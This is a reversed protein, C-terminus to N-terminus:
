WFEFGGHQPRATSFAPLCGVLRPLLDAPSPRALFTRRSSTVTLGRPCLLSPGTNFCAPSSSLHEELPCVPIAVLGHFHPRVVGGELLHLHVPRGHRRSSPPLVPAPVANAGSGPSWLRPRGGGPLRQARRGTPGQAGM